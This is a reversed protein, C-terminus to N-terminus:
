DEEPYEPWEGEPAGVGDTEPDVEPNAAWEEAVEPTFGAEHLAAIDEDAAQEAEAMVGAYVLAEHTPEEPM